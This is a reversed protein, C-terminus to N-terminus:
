IVAGDPATFKEDMVNGTNRTRAPEFILAETEIEAMTRHEVGRPVVCFEGQNLVVRRDRFEVTMQGRWILFMEDELEHHHWPFVGRLKVLKVEQGNLAAVVKPRWHEHILAFKENLSLKKMM